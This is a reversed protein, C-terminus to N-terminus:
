GLGNWGKGSRWTEFGNTAASHFGEVYCNNAPISGKFAWAGNTSKGKPPGVHGNDGGLTGSLFAGSETLHNWRIRVLFCNGASEIGMRGNVGMSSNDWLFVHLHHELRLSGAALQFGRQEATQIGNAAIDARLVDLGLNNKDICVHTYEKM